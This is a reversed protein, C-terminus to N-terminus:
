IEEGSDQMNADPEIPNGSEDYQTEIVEGMTYWYLECNSDLRNTLVDASKNTTEQKLNCKSIGYLGNARADLDAFLDFLDGEHLLNMDLRMRSVYVAINSVDDPLTAPTRQDLTFKVSPILHRKSSSQITEVWDIRQEDGVINQKKLANFRQQYKTLLLKQDSALKYRMTAQRLQNNSQQWHSGTEQNLYLLTGVLLLAFVVAAIFFRVQRKLRQWDIM